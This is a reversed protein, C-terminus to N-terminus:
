SYYQGYNQALIVLDLLGVTGNGDIDANPNWNSDTPKSGYAQALIVLDALSVKGDSDLDGLIPVILIVIVPADSLFSINKTGFLDGKVAELKLMDTYNRDTFTLNFDARGSGDTTGNWVLSQNAAKLVLSANWIQQSATDQVIVGYNRTASSNRWVIDQSTEFTINGFVTVSANTIVLRSYDYLFTGRSKKNGVDVRGIFCATSNDYCSIGEVSSDSFVINSLSTSQVYRIESGLLCVNADIDAFVNTVTSNLVTAKSEGDCGLLFINSRSLNLEGNNGIELRWSRIQSNRIMIDFNLHSWASNEKLDWYAFFGPEIGVLSLKENWEYLGPVLEGITCNIISVNSFHSIPMYYVTSNRVSAVLSGRFAMGVNEVTSNAIVVNQLTWYRFFGPNMNTLEIEGQTFIMELSATASNSLNLTSPDYVAIHGTLQTSSVDLKASDYSALWVSDLLGGYIFAEANNRVDLSFGNSSETLQANEVQVTANNGVQINFEEFYRLDMVFQASKIILSALDEVYVNGKQIYTCDEIVFTQTGNIILNGEHATVNDYSSTLSNPSPNANIQATSQVRQFDPSLSSTEALLLILIVCFVIKKNM